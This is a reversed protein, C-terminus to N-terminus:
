KKNIERNLFERLESDWRTGTKGADGWKTKPYHTTQDVPPNKSHDFHILHAETWVTDETASIQFQWFEGLIGVFKNIYMTMGRGDEKARRKMDRCFEIFDRIFRAKTKQEDAGYYDKQIEPKANKWRELATEQTFGFSKRGCSPCNITVISFNKPDGYFVQPISGCKCRINM